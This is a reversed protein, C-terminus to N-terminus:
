WGCIGALEPIDYDYNRKAIFLATADPYPTTFAKTAYLGCLPLNENKYYYRAIEYLSEVRSPRFNWAQLYLDM